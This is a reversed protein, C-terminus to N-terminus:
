NRIQSLFRTSIKTSNKTTLLHRSGVHFKGCDEGIWVVDFVVCEEGPVPMRVKQCKLSLFSYRVSYYM